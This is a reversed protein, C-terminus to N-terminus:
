TRHILRISWELPKLLYYTLRAARRSRIRRAIPPGVRDYVVRLARHVRPAYRALQYEAAKCLVLQRTSPAGRAAATVIFCPPPPADPPLSRYLEEARRLAHTWALAYGAFWPLITWVAPRGPGLRKWAFAYALLAYAPAAPLMSLAVVVTVPYAAFAVLGLLVALAVGTRPRVPGERPDVIIEGVILVVIPVLGMVMFATRPFLWVQIAIFTFSVLMGAALAPKTWRGRKARAPAFLTTLLACAAGGVLVGFGTAPVRHFLLTLIGDPRGSQWTPGWYSGIQTLFCLAPLVVGAFVAYIQLRQERSRQTQEHALAEVDVGM